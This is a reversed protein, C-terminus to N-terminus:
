CARPADFVDINNDTWWWGASRVVWPAYAALVQQGALLRQHLRGLLLSHPSLVCGYPVVIEPRIGRVRPLQAINQSHMMYALAYARESYLM